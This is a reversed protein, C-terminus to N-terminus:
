YIKVHDTIRKYISNELDRVRLDTEEAVEMGVRTHWKSKITMMVNDERLLFYDDFNIHIDM